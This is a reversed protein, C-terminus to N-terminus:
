SPIVSGCDLVYSLTESTLVVFNWVGYAQVTFKVIQHRQRHHHYHLPHHCNHHDHHHNPWKNWVGISSCYVEFDSIESSSSSSWPWSSAKTVYKLGRHKFQLNWLRIDGVIIIIDIIITMVIIIFLMIIWLIELGPVFFANYNMANQAPIVFLLTIWIM